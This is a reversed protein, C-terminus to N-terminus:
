GKNVCNHFLDEEVIQPFCGENAGVFFAIKSEKMKSLNIDLLSVSDIVPPASKIVTDKLELNFVQIFKSFSIKEKYIKSISEFIECIKEWVQKEKKRLAERFGKLSDFPRFQSVRIKDM